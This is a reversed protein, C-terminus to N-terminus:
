NVSPSLTSPEDLGSSQVKHRSEGTLDPIKNVAARKVVLSTHCYLDLTIRPDSHGMLESLTKADVGAQASWTGYTHRLDHIRVRGVIKTRKLATKFSKMLNSVHAKTESNEFFYMDGPLARLTGSVTESIPITREQGSKANEAVVTLLMRKFDVDERRLKLLEMKRLGTGLWIIIAPRLRIPDASAILHRAEEPELIRPKFKKEKELLKETPLPYVQLKGWEVGKRLATRLCALERNITAPSLGVRSARYRAVAEADIDKLNRGSFFKKLHTISIADRRYSRKRAAYLALFDDAFAKFKVAEGEPKKTPL